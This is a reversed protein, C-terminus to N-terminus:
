TYSIVIYGRNYSTADYNNTDFVSGTRRRIVIYNSDIYGVGGWVLNPDAGDTFGNLLVVSADDDRRISINEVRINRWNTVGHAVSVETTSDMNWDGINISKKYYPTGDDLWGAVPNGNFQLDGAVINVNGTNTIIDGGAWIKGAAAIGGSSILAAATSSTAETTNAIVINGANTGGTGITLNAGDHQILGYKSLDSNYLILGGKITLYPDSAGTVFNIRGTAESAIIDIDGGNAIGITMYSDLDYGVRIQPNITSMVHLPNSPNVGIGLYGNGNLRMLENYTTGDATSITGFSILVSGAGIGSYTFLRLGIDGSDMGIGTYANGSHYLSIIKGQNPVNTAFDIAKANTVKFIETNNTGIVINTNEHNWIIGQESADIGFETGHSAVQTTTSNTFRLLNANSTAEHVNIGAGAKSRIEDITFIGATGFFNTWNGYLQVFEAQFLSGLAPTGTSPTSGDRFTTIQTPQYAM